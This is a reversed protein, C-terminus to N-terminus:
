KPFGTEPNSLAQIEPDATSLQLITAMAGTLVTISLNIIGIITVAKTVNPYVLLGTGLPATISSLILLFKQVRKIIAPTDTSKFRKWLISMTTIKKNQKKDM